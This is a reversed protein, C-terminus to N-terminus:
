QLEGLAQRSLARETAKDQTALTPGSAEEQEEEMGGALLGKSRM